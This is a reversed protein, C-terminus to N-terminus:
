ELNPSDFFHKTRKNQLRGNKQGFRPTCSSASTFKKNSSGTPTLGVPGLMSHLVHKEEPTHHPTHNEINANNSMLFQNWYETPIDLLHEMVESQLKTEKFIEAPNPNLSSFGVITPGFVKALNQKPMRCDATQSVYQLHKILFALTDRNAQPMCKIVEYLAAQINAENGYETVAKIFSPWLKYTVLTDKLSRLFDKLCGCIVNIDDILSLNPTGKGRLFKDKLERVERESGPVRYIGVENLGRREVEATLRQIIGPIRPSDLGAYDALFGMENKTLGPTRVSVPICPVPTQEECEPHRHFKCEKCRMIKCGFKFKQNCVQCYEPKVTRLINFVHVSNLSSSASNAKRLMPSKSESQTRHRARRSESSRRPRLTWVEECEDGASDTRKFKVDLMPESFSKNLQPKPLNIETTTRTQPQGSDSDVHIRTKTIISTDRDTSIRKRKPPTSDECIDASSADLDDDTVDYSIDSLCSASSDRMRYANSRRKSGDSRQYSNLFALKQMDKEDLMSKNKDNLLNRIMEILNELTVRDNEVQSRKQFEFKIQNRAHKLETELTAKLQNSKRLEERLKVIEKEAAFWKVFAKQVNSVFNQFEAENGNTLVFQNAILADYNAVLSATKMAIKKRNKAKGRHSLSNKLEKPMEAYTQDFGDPQFCPDWGFDNPGSPAVIKGDTQGKFLLVPAELNGTSFALTCLAYASKDEFGHLLRHLGEPKLKNLFWKIYPGPLGGLANFCLSTDEVVVPGKVIKAAELCKARSIDDSEGQYEPIDVNENILKYPFNKGLIQTFEKLKNANGTVFTITTMNVSISHHNSFYVCCGNVTNSEINEKGLVM